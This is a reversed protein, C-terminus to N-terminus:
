CTLERRGKGALSRSKFFSFNAKLNFFRQKAKEARFHAKRVRKYRCPLILQSQGFRYRPMRPRPAAPLPASRDLMYCCPGVSESWEPCDPGSRSPSKCGTYGHNRFLRFRPPSSLPNWRLLGRLAAAASAGSVQLLRQQGTTGGAGRYAALRAARPGRDGSPTPVSPSSPLSHM